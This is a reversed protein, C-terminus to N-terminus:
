PCFNDLWHSSHVISTAILYHADVKHYVPLVTRNREQDKQLVYITCISITRQINCDIHIM